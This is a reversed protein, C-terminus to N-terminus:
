TDENRRKSLECIKSQLIFDYSYRAVACRMIVSAFLAGPPQVAFRDIPTGGILKLLAHWRRKFFWDHKYQAKKLFFKVHRSVIQIGRLRVSAHIPVM